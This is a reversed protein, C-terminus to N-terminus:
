HAYIGEVVAYTKKNAGYSFATIRYVNKGATSETAVAESFELSPTASGIYEIVCAPEDALGLTDTSSFSEFPALRGRKDDWFSPDDWWRGGITGTSSVDSFANLNYQASSLDAGAVQIDTECQILGAEAGQFAMNRNQANMTMREDLRVGNISSTGILTLALLVVLGIALVAGREASYRRASHNQRVRQM